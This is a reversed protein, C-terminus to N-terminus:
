KGETIVNHMSIRFNNKRNVSEPESGRVVFRM